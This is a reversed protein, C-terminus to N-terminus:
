SNIRKYLEKPSLPSSVWSFSLGKTPDVYVKSGGCYANIYLVQEIRIITGIDDDITIFKNPKPTKLDDLKWEMRNLRGVVNDMYTRPISQNSELSTLIRMVENMWESNM